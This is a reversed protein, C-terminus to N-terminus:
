LAPPQTDASDEAPLIEIESGMSLDQGVRRSFLRYRGERRSSWVVFINGGADEALVPSFNVGFNTNLIVPESWKGKRRARLVIMDGEEYNSVNYPQLPDRQRASVWACWLTGQKDQILSPYGNNVGQNVVRVSIPSIKGVTEFPGAIQGTGPRRTLVMMLVAGIAVATLLKATFSRTPM